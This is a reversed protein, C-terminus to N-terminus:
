PEGEGAAHCRSCAAADETDFTKEGDHCAGCATREHMGGAPRAPAFRMGFPTPHCAVCGGAGRLHSAHDFVVPGPSSEGRKYLHPGPVRAGPRTGAGGPPGVAAAGATPRGTHCTACSASDRVGFALRGDHCTGCSGGANMAAHGTRHEPHLMRFPRPHCGTCRNGALAFHTEHSFVVARAPATSDGFVLDAPLRVAVAATPASEGAAIAGGVGAAIALLAALWSRAHLVVCLRHRWIM